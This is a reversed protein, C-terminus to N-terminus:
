VIRLELENLSATLSNPVGHLQHRHPPRKDAGLGTHHSFRQPRQQGRLMTPLFDSHILAAAEEITPRLRDDVNGTTIGTYTERAVTGRLM